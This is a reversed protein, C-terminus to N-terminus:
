NYYDPGRVNDHPPLSPREMHEESVRDLGSQLISKVSRYSFAGAAVARRSAAEMREAGFRESLRIIGLCSRYGMEPHPKSSMIGEVLMATSPGIEEAWSIIRSPPWELHAKHSAPRHEDLTTARGKLYSRAHAIHRRGKHFIEVTSSTLRVEVKEGILRYSVSYYHGDIEIHYDISVKAKKWTAFEFPKDPLPKLAPLDHSRFLDARSADLVKMKRNNLWELREAIALNADFLSNFVRNRLPALIWREAQLVGNEVKAKDKPARVRTPIVACGYYAAMDAYTQNIDPEYRCAHTVGTKLNDPILIEPAGEFFSFARVHVGIWNPLEQSAVAEVYTYNSFGHTAVFVQADTIEGTAPDVIPLTMGAFDTFLKQGAKHEQRMSIEQKDAWRSYLDCFWSYSYHDDPNDSAYEEWLLALTVAKRSLERHLLKMDPVTKSPEREAEGYLAKELAEDDMGEPLPWTIGAERARRLCEGVTTASVNLSRAIQRNSLGSEQALRLIEKTKRM